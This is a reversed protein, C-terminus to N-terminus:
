NDSSLINAMLVRGLADAELGLVQTFSNLESQKILARKVMMYTSNCRTANSQIVEQEATPEEALTYIGAEEHERADAKFAEIHQTSTRIFKIIDHLKGVLGRLEGTTSTKKWEGWSVVWVEDYSGSVL